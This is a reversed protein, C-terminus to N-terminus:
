DTINAGLIEFQRLFPLETPSQISVALKSPSLVSAAVDSFQTPTLQKVISNIDEFNPLGIAFLQHKGLWTMLSKMEDLRLMTQTLYVRQALEVRQVDLSGNAIQYLIDAILNMTEEADKPSCIARVTLVGRDSFFHVPSKITYVLGRDCRVKRILEDYLYYSLVNVIHRTLVSVDIVEFGYLLNVLSGKSLACRLCPRDPAPGKIYEPLQDRASYVPALGQEAMRIFVEPTVGGVCVVALRSTTNLVEQWHSEITEKTLKEVIDVYGTPLLPPYLGRWLLNELQVFNTLNIDQSEQAIERLIIARQTEVEQESFDTNFLMQSMLQLARAVDSCSVQMLFVQYESATFSNTPAALEELAARREGGSASVLHEIFHTIGNMSPCENWYGGRVWFGIQVTYAGPIYSSAIKIKNPLLTEEISVARM